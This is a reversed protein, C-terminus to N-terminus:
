LYRNRSIDNEAYYKERMIVDDSQGTRPCQAPCVTRPTGEWAEALHATGTRGGTAAGNDSLLVVLTDQALGATALRDM